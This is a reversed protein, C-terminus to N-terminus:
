PSGPRVLLAQCNRKVPYAEQVGADAAPLMLPVLMRLLLWRPCSRAARSHRQAAESHKRATRGRQAEESPAVRRSSSSSSSSCGRATVLAATAAATKATSIGQMRPDSCELAGKRTKPSETQQAAADFLTQQAKARNNNTSQATQAKGSPPKCSALM